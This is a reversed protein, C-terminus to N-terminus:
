SLARILAIQTCTIVNRIVVWFHPSVAACRIIPVAGINQLVCLVGLAMSAMVSRIEAEGLGPDNIARYSHQRNLAFFEPELSVFDLYQDVM